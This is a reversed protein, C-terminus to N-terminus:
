SILPRLFHQIAEVDPSVDDGSFSIELNKEVDWHTKVVHVNPGRPAWVRPNTPGFVVVANIGSVGALHSMGSDNGVYASGQVLLALAQTLSLDQLLFAGIQEMEKAFAILHSDAPGSLVILPKQTNQVIWQVLFRWKKLPWIKKRGGSGPHLVVPSCQLPLGLEVLRSQISVLDQRSAKLRVPINQTSLGLSRLRGAVFDPVSKRTDRQPFSRVWHVPCPLRRSMRESIPRLSDQGLFFVTEAGQFFPPVPAKEWLDDHYFPALDKCECTHRAGVFPLSQVIDSHQPRTWLDFCMSFRQHLGHLVPLTM